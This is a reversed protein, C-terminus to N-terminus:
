NINKHKDACVVEIITFMKDKKNLHGIIENEVTKTPDNNGPLYVPKINEFQDNFINVFNKQLELWLQGSTYISDKKGWLYYPISERPGYHKKLPNYYIKTAKSVTLSFPIRFYRWIRGPRIVSCKYIYKKGGIEPLILKSELEYTEKSDILKYKRILVNGFLLWNIIAVIYKINNM